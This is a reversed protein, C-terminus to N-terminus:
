KHPKFGQRAKMMLNQLKGREEESLIRKEPHDELWRDEDRKRVFFDHEPNLGEIRRGIVCNQKLMRNTFYFDTNRSKKAIKKQNRIWPEHCFAQLKCIEEDPFWITNDLNKEDAPCFPADCTDFYKCENPCTPLEKRKDIHAEM